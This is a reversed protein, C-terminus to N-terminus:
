WREDSGATPHPRRIRGDAGSVPQAIASPPHAPANGYALTHDFATKGIRGM